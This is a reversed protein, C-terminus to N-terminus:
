KSNLEGLHTFKFGKEYKLGFGFTRDMASHGYLVIGITILEPLDVIFGLTAVLLAVGKHHFLNYSFAGIRNGGLYGLMSIDPGLFLLLYWWWSVDFLFYLLLLAVIFQALEELQLLYKM